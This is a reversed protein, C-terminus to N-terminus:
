LGFFWFFLLALGERLKHYFLKSYSLNFYSPYVYAKFNFFKTIEYVRVLHYEDSIIIIHHNEVKPILNKHLYTIQEVTSSTLNEIFLRNSKVGLDLLFKAAVEAEPLENPASGGMLQIYEIEGSDLLQHATLIRAKFIDSPINGKWVAAGLVVGINKSDDTPINGSINASFQSYIFAFLFIATIAVATDFLSKLYILSKQKHLINWYVFVIFILIAIHLFLFISLLTREVPQYLLYADAIKVDYYKFLYCTILLFLNFAALAILM